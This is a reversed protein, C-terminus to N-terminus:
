KGEEMLIKYLAVTRCIGVVNTLEKYEATYKIIDRVDCMILEGFDDVNYLRTYIKGSISELKKISEYQTYLDIFISSTVRYEKGDIHFNCSEGHCRVSGQIAFGEKTVYSSSLGNGTKTPLNFNGVLAKGVKLQGDKEKTKTPTILLERYKNDLLQSLFFNFDEGTTKVGCHGHYGGMINAKPDNTLNKNITVYNDNNVDLYTHELKYKDIIYKNFLEKYNLGTYSELVDALIMLPIDTYKYIGCLSKDLYVTRLVKIADEKNTCNRIDGQTLYENNFSILDMMTLNAADGSYLKTLEKIRTELTLNYEDIVNFLIVETYAKSMSAIDFITNKDYKNNGFPLYFERDNIRISVLGSFPKFMPYQKIWRKMIDNLSNNFIENIDKDFSNLLTKNDKLYELNKLLEEIMM